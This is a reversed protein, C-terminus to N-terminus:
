QRSRKRSLTSRFPRGVRDTCNRVQCDIDHYLVEWGRERARQKLVDVCQSYIVLDSSLILSWGRSENKRAMGRLAFDLWKCATKLLNQATPKRSDGQRMSSDFKGGAGVKGGGEGSGSNNVARSPDV